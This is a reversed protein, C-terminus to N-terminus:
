ASCRARSTRRSRCRAISSTGRRQRARLQNPTPHSPFFFPLLSFPSYAVVVPM